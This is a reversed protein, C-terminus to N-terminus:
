LSCRLAARRRKWFAAGAIMAILGLGMMAGSPLPTAIASNVVLVDRLAGGSPITTLTLVRVDGIGNAGFANFWDGGESTHANAEQIWLAEQSGAAISSPDIEQELVWFVRQLATASAMRDTGVGYHYNSLQGNWFQTFLYASQASLPDAGGVAGGAGGSHAAASSTWNVTEGFKQNEVTEISFTQFVNTAIKANAGMPAFLGGTFLTVGFEGGANGGTYGASDTTDTTLSITGAEAATALACALGVAAIAPAVRGLRRFFSM